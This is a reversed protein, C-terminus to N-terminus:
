IILEKTQLDVAAGAKDCADSAGVLVTKHRLPSRIAIEHEQIGNFRSHFQDFLALWDKESIEIAKQRYGLRSLNLRGLTQCVRIVSQIASRDEQKLSWDRIIIGCLSAADLYKRIPPHHSQTINALKGWKSINKHAHAM